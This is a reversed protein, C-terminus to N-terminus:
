PAAAQPLQAAVIQAREIQWAKHVANDPLSPAADAPRASPADAASAGPLKRIWNMPGAPKM